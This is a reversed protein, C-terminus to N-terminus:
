SQGEQSVSDPDVGLNRLKEESRREIDHLQNAVAYRLDDAAVGIAERTAPTTGRTDALAESLTIV